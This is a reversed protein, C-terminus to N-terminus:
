LRKGTAPDFFHVKSLDFLCTIEEGVQVSRPDYMRAILETKGIQCFILTENGLMETLSVRAKVEHAEAFPMGHGVPQINEARLGVSVPGPRVHAARSGLPFKLDGSNFHGDSIEGEIFTMKPSGIFGAVFKNAPSNYLELPTGVQAISGGDMVVIQDALTMAEVQDHTVYITTAGLRQQIRKIEVRMQNRLMADLNSLPEDFLFVKPERVIARGMAVRQRQGGSLASPRRELYPGLELIDAASRVRQEIESKGLKSLRMSFALNEAVTMHPYLAYSQFVMAIGRKQPALNTAVSGGIHIDGSSVGELGAIMRLTTSKGCGSPGVFVVFSEDKIELDIGRVAVHSGYVKVLQDLQVTAM